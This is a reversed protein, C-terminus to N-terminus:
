LSMKQCPRLALTRWSKIHAKFVQPPTTTVGTTKKESHMFYFALIVLSGSVSLHLKWFIICIQSRTICRNKKLISVFLEAGRIAVMIELYCLTNSNWPIYNMIIIKMLSLTLISNTNFHICFKLKLNSPANLFIKLSSGKELLVPLELLFLFSTCLSLFVFLCFCYFCCCCCFCLYM